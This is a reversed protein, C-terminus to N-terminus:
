ITATELPRVDNERELLAEFAEAPMPRGFLYGQGDDCGHDRLYILQQETEVGEAIVTHGLAHGLEIIAGAIIADDQNEPLGRVFSQDIKLKQVPLRRLYSLSSYGTGFDDISLTVGLNKLSPIAKIVHEDDLLYTETVELELYKAPLQARTLVDEIIQCLDDHKFNASSINVAIRRRPLGAAHWAANQACAQELVWRSIGHILGYEEAIGIFMSPPVMGRTPHNWRILAEMGTLRRTRLNVQPQFHLVFEGKEIAAHLDSELTLRDRIQANLASTFFQFNNRGKNKALYMAVDANRLLEDPRNSDLPFVSIGISPSIHIDRGSIQFPEAMSSVFKRALTAAGELNAIEPQLVAFEDGGVRAVTDSSRLCSELRRAVAQLLADGVAHGLTDNVVKFRDLDIFHLALSCSNRKAQQVAQELRNHLEARNCLGTLPDHYALHEIRAEADKRATIDEHVAIFHTIEGSGDTLPTITQHVTYLEGNKRREVTEGSWVKGALITQWIERYFEADHQGSKQIRPTQDTLEELRFGSLRCFAANAWMIHGRKDTIFISNAAASLASSQLRLQEQDRVKATIDEKVAVFNTIENRENRVASVSASEWYLTGDKKKNCFEGRWDRGATITEWLDRYFQADHQHSKLMRPNEGVAEVASYGTIETFKPNVFEITGQADTIVVAAPSQEVALMLKILEEERARRKTIDEAIGACRYVTGHEDIVPFGRDSIWRVSGDPRIIRYEISYQQGVEKAAKSALLEQRDDPHVAELFSRPSKLLSECTRGWIREYAPSVYYMTTISPDSIWFVEDINETLQRFREESERLAQEAQKQETVDRSNVIVGAIGPDHLLNRGVAALYRWSGDNHQFRFEASATQDPRALVEQFARLAAPRDDPHIFDFVWRGIMENPEHGLLQEAAPNEFRVFGREDLVTIIDLSCYVLQRFFREREVGLAPDMPQTPKQMQLRGAFSSPKM